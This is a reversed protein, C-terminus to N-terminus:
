EVKREMIMGFWMRKGIWKKGRSGLKLGDGGEGIDDAEIKRELVEGLVHFGWKKGEEVVEEVEYVYSEGRVKTKKGEVEDVFGAQSQRGMEAHMNTILLRGTSVNSAPKLLFHVASFFSSIPLHELVLTSMITDAKGRVLEAVEPNGRPDLADFEAFRIRPPHCHSEHNAILAACRSRAMDLMAPSLDLAYISSISTSLPPTLVRITNRGTGCGIETITTGNQADSPLSFLTSLLSPILASDLIQLPNRDTDYTAAWRNYLLSTSVEESRTTSTSSTSM